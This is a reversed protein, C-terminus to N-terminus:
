RGPQGNGDNEESDAGEEQRNEREKSLQELVENIRLSHDISADLKFILRPMTRLRISGSLERQIFGAANNLHEITREKADDSGMVSVYITSYYLDRTTDVRTVTTFGLSPDRVRMQIIESVERRLLENIKEIRRTSM